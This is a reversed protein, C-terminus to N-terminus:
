ENFNWKIKVEKVKDGAISRISFWADSKWTLQRTTDADDKVLYVRQVKNNITDVYVNIEALNMGAPLKSKPTYTFTYSGITRDLFSNGTFYLNLNASDIQPKLFPAAEQRVEERKIWVSDTKSGDSIIKVPTVEMKELADIQGLLYDTVPFVALPKTTSDKYVIQDHEKEKKSQKCSFIFILLAIATLYRYQM